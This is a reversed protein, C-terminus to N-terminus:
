HRRVSSAGAPDAEHESREESSALFHHILLQTSLIGVLAMNDRIGIARGARFKEVLQDVAAPDFLGDGAIRGPALLEAVYDEGSGGFFVAAEPARYPQKPRAAIAPPILGAAARKLLHKEDLGRMKLSPPLAAAFEVVRYDLFPSRLEVSHAMAMRDGQSSLIYGPLLGTTELYQAQCFPPWDGYRAPLRERLEAYVDRTALAARVAPAFFRKLGATLTWRPLHSFFPSALDAPEVHFFARRYAEPQRQLNPLWPYMRRLLLPRARSGPDAAWFRRIKAEKFIDYGGLMEDAGEGTLVVKYGQAGVLRSLLYLPAPATRLIPTETHRIVDPFVRAIDGGSCRVEAHESGLFRAADRQYGREDFEPDDFVVSFTRLRTDTFRTVLATVVTSDLGGSLYAGVPVDARLRLRTADVLLARLEEAAEGPDREGGAVAQYDLRWHPTIRVAGSAEVIMSHGPPLEEVGRFVTRPALPCWFTFVEDLGRLDLERPVAPHGFLAKIESGFVLRRGTHAYFLPRVGLRDRSLFLRRRRADWIAFAWQGNFDRVCADGRDEYAKLIVETDSRTSFTHGRARLEERLEVHNFIEGNFAIWLSGDRGAMPQRGGAVDVISLRAHALGVPGDAHVGTDDPGRHHARGIMRRLLPADVPRGDFDFVGAIGCM